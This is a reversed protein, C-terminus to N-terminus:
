PLTQHFILKEITTPKPTEWPRSESSKTLEGISSNHKQIIDIIRTEDIKQVKLLFDWQDTYPQFEENLFVSNEDRRAKGQLPLAM